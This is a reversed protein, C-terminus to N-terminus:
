LSLHQFHIGALASEPSGEETPFRDYQLIRVPLQMPLLPHDQFEEPVLTCGDSMQSVTRRGTPLFRVTKGHGESPISDTTSQVESPSSM